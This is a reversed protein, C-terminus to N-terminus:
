GEQSTAAPNLAEDEQHRELVHRAGMGQVAIFSWDGPLAAAAGPVPQGIGVVGVVWGLVAVSLAFHVLM